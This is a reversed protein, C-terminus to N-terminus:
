KKGAKPAKAKAVTAAKPLGVGQILLDAMLGARTKGKARAITDFHKVFTEDMWLAIVKKGKKRQNAM